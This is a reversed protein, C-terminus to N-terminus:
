LSLVIEKWEYRSLDGVRDFLLPYPKPFFDTLVGQNVIGIPVKFHFYFAQADELYIKEDARLIVIVNGLRNIRAYEYKM